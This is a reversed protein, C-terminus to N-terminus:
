ILTFIEYPVEIYHLPNFGFLLAALSSLWIMKMTVTMELVRRDAALQSILKIFLTSCRM